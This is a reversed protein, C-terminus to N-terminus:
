FLFLVYFNRSGQKTPRVCQCDQDGGVGRWGHWGSVQKGSGSTWEPCMVPPFESLIQEATIGPPPHVDKIIKTVQIVWPTTAARYWLYVWSLANSRPDLSKSQLNINFCVLQVAATSALDQTSDKVEVHNYGWTASSSKAEQMRGCGCVCVCLCLRECVYVANATTM